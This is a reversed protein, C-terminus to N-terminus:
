AQDLRSLWNLVMMAQTVAQKEASRPGELSWGHATVNWMRLVDIGHMRAVWAMHGDFPWVQHDGDDNDPGYAGTAGPGIWLM